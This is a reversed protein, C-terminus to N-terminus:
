FTDPFAEESKEVKSRAQEESAQEAGLTEKTSPPPNNFPKCSAIFTETSIKGISVECLNALLIQTDQDLKAINDFDPFCVIFRELKQFAYQIKPKILLKNLALWSGADQYKALDANIRNKLELAKEYNPKRELVYAVPGVASILVSPDDTQYCDVADRIKLEIRENYKRPCVAIQLTGIGSADAAYLKIQQQRVTKVQAKAHEYLRGLCINGDSDSAEGDLGELLYYTFAGHAHPATEDKHKLTIERSKQDEGSSALVIIGEESSFDKVHEEYKTGPDSLSKEGKTAIGSYCCDLIAIACKVHTSEVSKSIVQKLESMKIGYVLPHEMSMDYPAIYGENYYDLEHGHGSFYFVALDCSEDTKYFVDSIARRIQACTAEKGILFHGAPIDYNGIEPDKLREYIDSADNEAGELPPISGDSYNNIGVVIARRKPIDEPM